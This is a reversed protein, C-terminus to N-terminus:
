RDGFPACLHDATVSPIGYYYATVINFDWDPDKGPDSMSSGLVPIACTEAPKETGSLSRLERDREIWATRINRVLSINNLYFWGVVTILILPLLASTMNLDAKPSIIPKLLTGLQYMILMFALIVWAMPISLVRPPMFDLISNITLVGIATIILGAFVSCLLKGSVPSTNLCIGTFFALILFILAYEIRGSFYQFLSSVSVLLKEPLVRLITMLDTYTEYGYLQGAGRLNGSTFLVLLTLGWSFLVLCANRRNLKRSYLIKPVLLILLSVACVSAANLESTGCACFICVAAGITKEALHDSSLEASIMLAAAMITLANGIGYIFTGGGWFWVEWINPSMFMIGMAILMGGWLTELRSFRGPLLNVLLSCGAFLLLFSFFLLCNIFFNIDSLFFQYISKLFLSFYRGCINVYEYRIFGPFGYKVADRIEWYDDRRLTQLLCLIGILLVCLAICFIYIWKKDKWLRILHWILFTILLALVSIVILQIIESRQSFSKHVLRNLLTDLFPLIKPRALWM